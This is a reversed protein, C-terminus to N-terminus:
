GFTFCFVEVGSELFEIEFTREVVPGAQRVLQYTRQDKLIGTSDPGIDTGRAATTPERDLSVRFHIVSGERAPGMVLNVDRAQFRFAIRGNPEALVAAHASMSWAGIPAWHNLPLADPEPYDRVVDEVLPQPSAFGTTQGYGLYTEPSRLTQWDSAVELGTPHVTVLDPDVGRGSEMLLQQIAMETMAYEGEGFHHYRIGGDADALYIAPWFHNAFASWVRYGNDLAIPYTVGFDATQRAVNERDHEFSFEPTHVGVV